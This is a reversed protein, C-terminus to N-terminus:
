EPIQLHTQNKTYMYLIIKRKKKIRPEAWCTNQKQNGQMVEILKSGQKIAM